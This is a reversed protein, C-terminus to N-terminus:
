ATATPRPTSPNRAGQGELWEIAEGPKLANFEEGARSVARYYAVDEIQHRETWCPGWHKHVKGRPSEHIIKTKM